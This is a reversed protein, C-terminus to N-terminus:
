ARLRLHEVGSLHRSKSDGADVRLQQPAYRVAQPMLGRELVVRRLHQLHDLGALTQAGILEGAPVPGARAAHLAQNSSSGRTRCHFSV